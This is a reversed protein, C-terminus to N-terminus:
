TLMRNLVSTETFQEVVNNVILGTEAWKRCLLFYKAYFHLMTMLYKWIIKGFWIKHIQIILYRLLKDNLRYNNGKYSIFIWMFQINIFQHNKFLYTNVKRQKLPFNLFTNSWIAFFLVISKECAAKWCIKRIKGRAAFM